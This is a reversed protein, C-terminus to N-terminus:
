SIISRITSFGSFNLTLSSSELYSFLSKVYEDDSTMFSSLSKKNAEDFYPLLLILATSKALMLNEIFEHLPVSGLPKSEM